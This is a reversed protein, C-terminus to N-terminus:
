ARFRCQSPLVDCFVGLATTDFRKFVIFIPIANCQVPKDLVHYYLSLTSLLVYVIAYVYSQSYLFVRRPFVRLPAM